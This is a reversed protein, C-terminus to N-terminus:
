FLLLLEVVLFPSGFLTLVDNNVVSFKSLSTILLASLEISLCRCPSLFFHDLSHFILHGSFNIDEFTSILFHSYKSFLRM